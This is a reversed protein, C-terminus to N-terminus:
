KVGRQRMKRRSRYILETMWKRIVVVGIKDERPPSPSYYYMILYIKTTIRVFARLTKGQPSKKNKTHGRKSFAHWLCILGFM